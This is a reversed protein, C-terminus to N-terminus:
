VRAANWSSPEATEGLRVRSHVMLDRAIRSADRLEGCGAHVNSAKDVPDAIGHDRSMLSQEAPSTVEAGPDYKQSKTSECVFVGITTGRQLWGEPAAARNVSAPSTLHDVRERRM